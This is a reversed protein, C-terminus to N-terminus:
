KSSTVVLYVEKDINHLYRSLLADRFNLSTATHTNTSLFFCVVNSLKTELVRRNGFEECLADNNDSMIRPMLM